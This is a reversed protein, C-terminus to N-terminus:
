TFMLYNNSSFERTNQEFQDSATVLPAGQQDGGVLREACPAFHERILCHSQRGDVAENVVGGNEFHIDLAISSAGCEFALAVGASGGCV